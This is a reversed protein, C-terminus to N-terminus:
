TPDSQIVFGDDTYRSMVLDKKDSTIRKLLTGFDADDVEIFFITYVSTFSIWIEEDNFTIDELEFSGRYKNKLYQQKVERYLAENEFQRVDDPYYSKKQDPEGYASLDINYPQYFLKM